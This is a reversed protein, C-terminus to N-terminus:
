SSKPNNYISLQGSEWGTQWDAWLWYTCEALLSEPLPSDQNQRWRRVCIELEQGTSGPQVDNYFKTSMQCNRRSLTSVPHPPHDQRPVVVHPNFWALLFSFGRRRVGIIPVSFRHGKYTRETRKIDTWGNSLFPLSNIIIEWLVPSPIISPHCVCLFFSLKTRGPWSQTAKQRKHRKLPKGRQKERDTKITQM